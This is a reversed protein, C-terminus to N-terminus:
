IRVDMPIFDEISRSNAEFYDPSLFMREESAYRFMERYANKWQLFFSAM